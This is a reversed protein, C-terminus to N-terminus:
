LDASMLKASKTKIGGESHFVSESFMLTRHQCNNENPVKFFDNGQWRAEITGTTLHAILIITGKFVTVKKRQSSTLNERPQQEKPTWNHYAM